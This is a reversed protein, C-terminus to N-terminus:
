HNEMNNLFIKAIDPESIWSLHNEYKKIIELTGDTSGADIIIHEVNPYNQSIVSLINDEIFQDQNVSVTVISIKPYKTSSM